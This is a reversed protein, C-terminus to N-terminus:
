KMHSRARRDNVSKNRVQPQKNHGPSKHKNQTWFEEDSVSVTTHNKEQFNEQAPFYKDTLTQGDPSGPDM